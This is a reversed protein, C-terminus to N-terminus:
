NAAWSAIASVLATGLAAILLAKRVDEMFGVAGRERNLERLWEKSAYDRNTTQMGYGM